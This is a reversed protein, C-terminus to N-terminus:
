GKDGPNVEALICKWHDFDTDLWPEADQVEFVRGRYTVRDAKKGDSQDATLLEAAAYCKMHRRTRQAEPLNLLERGKLPQISMMVELTSTAGPVYLGNVYAGAAYRTVTQLKGYEAILDTSDGM